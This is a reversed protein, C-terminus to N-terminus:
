ACAHVHKCTCVRLGADCSVARLARVHAHTCAFCVVKVQHSSIIAYPLMFRVGLTWSIKMALFSLVKRVCVGPRQNGWEM